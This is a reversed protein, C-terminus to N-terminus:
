CQFGALYVCQLWNSILSWMPLSTSAVGPTLFITCPKCCNPLHHSPHNAQCLWDQQISLGAFHELFHWFQTMLVM